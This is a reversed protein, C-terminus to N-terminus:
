YSLNWVIKQALIHVYYNIKRLRGQDEKLRTPHTEDLLNAIVELAITPM